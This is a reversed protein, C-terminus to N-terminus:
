DALRGSGPFCAVRYDVPEAARSQVGNQPRAFGRVMRISDDARRLAESLTGDAKPEKAPDPLPCDRRTELEGISGSPKGAVPDM